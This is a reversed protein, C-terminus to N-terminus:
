FEVEEKGHCVPVNDANSCFGCRYAERGFHLSCAVKKWSLVIAESKSISITMGGAECEAPLRGLAHQLDLNSSALMVVDDVFLPSLVM